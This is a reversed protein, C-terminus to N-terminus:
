EPDFTMTIESDPANLGGSAISCVEVTLFDSSRKQGGRTEPKESRKEESAQKMRARGGLKISPPGPTYGGSIKKSIISAQLRIKACKPLFIGTNSSGVFIKGGIEALLRGGIKKM